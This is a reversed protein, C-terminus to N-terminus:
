REARAYEGRELLWDAIHKADAAAREMDGAHGWHIPEAPATRLLELAAELDAIAARKHALYHDHCRDSAAIPLNGYAATQHM